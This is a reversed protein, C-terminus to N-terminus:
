KGYSSEPFQPHGHANWHEKQCELNGEQSIGVNSIRIGM